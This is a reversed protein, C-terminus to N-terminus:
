EGSETEEGGFLEEVIDAVDSCVQTNILFTADEEADKEAKPLSLGSVALASDLTFNIGDPNEGSTAVLNIKRFFMGNALADSVSPESNKVAVSMTEGSESRGSLTASGLQQIEYGSARIGNNRAIGGFVEAPSKENIFPVLKAGMCTQFLEVVPQAAKASAAGVFLRGKEQDWICDIVSPVAPTESMIKATVQEKLEKRRRSGVRNGDTEEAKIREALELRVLAGPAKKQDLRFSFGSFRSGCNALFFNESDLPDNLGVWGARKGGEEMRGAFSFRRLADQSFDASEEAKFILMNAKAAMFGAM